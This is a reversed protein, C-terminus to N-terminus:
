TGTIREQAKPRGCACRQGAPSRDGAAREWWLRHIRHLFGQTSSSSTHNPGCEKRPPDLPPGHPPRNLRYLGRCWLHTDRVAAVRAVLPGARAMRAGYRVMLLHTQTVAATLDSLTNKARENKNCAHGQTTAQKRRTGFGHARLICARASNLGFNNLWSSTRNSSTLAPCRFPPDSESIVLTSSVSRM